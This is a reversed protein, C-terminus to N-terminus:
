DKLETLSFWLGPNYNEITGEPCYFNFGYAWESGIDIVYYIDNGDSSYQVFMNGYDDYAYETDAPKNGQPGSRQSYEEVSEPFTVGAAAYSEPGNCGCYVTFDEFEIQGAWGGPLPDDTEWSSAEGGEPLYFTGIGELEYAVLEGTLTDRLTVDSDKLTCSLADYSIVAVDGRLFSATSAGYEGGTLGIEDSLEWAKDWEFDAGSEYGLARLVFTIYQAATVSTDSGFATEGTGDTLGKSYAYGVYPEAWAPVDTFPTDWDGALAADEGGLLRVLMTVAEARTPARDLDFVPTGDANEATGQFLGLEYLANAAENAKDSAASAFPALTLMLCLVLAFAFIRKM